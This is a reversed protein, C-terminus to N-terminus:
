SLDDSESPMASLVQAQASDLYETLEAAAEVAQGDRWLTFIHANATAFPAHFAPEGALAHFVLRMEAQVHAMVTDLRVSQALGVVLAHFQQNAAAMGAVDHNEESALGLQVAAALAKEQIEGGQPLSQVQPLSQIQYRPQLLAAPELVRRIRYMERVDASSPRAVFVGRNPIRTIIREANLLTFAERLTNRSVGLEAGLSAESLKAGPPLEGGLIAMRLKEAVASGTHAHKADLPGM